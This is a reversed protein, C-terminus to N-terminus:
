RGGGQAIHGRTVRSSARPTEEHAPRSTTVVKTVVALATVFEPREKCNLDIQEIRIPDSASAAAALFKALEGVPGEMEISLSFKRYFGEDEDPLPRVSRVQLGLREYLSTLLQTFRSMEQSASGSERILGKLQSYRAEIQDKLQMNARMRTLAVERRAVEQKLQVYRSWQPQFVVEFLMVGLLLSATAGALVRERANWVRM